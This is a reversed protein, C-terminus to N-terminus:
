LSTNRIGGRGELGSRPVRRPASAADAREPSTESSVMGEIESRARATYMLMGLGGRKESPDDLDADVSTAPGM